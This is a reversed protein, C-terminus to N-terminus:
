IIEMNLLWSDPDILCVLLPTLTPMLVKRSVKFLNNMDQTDTDNFSMRFEKKTGDSLTLLPFSGARSMSGMSDISVHSGFGSCTGALTM